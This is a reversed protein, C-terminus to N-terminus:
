VGADSGIGSSPTGLLYPTSAAELLKCNFTRTRLSATNPTRRLTYQSGSAAKAKELCLHDFELPEHKSQQALQIIRAEYCCFHWQSEECDFSVRAM